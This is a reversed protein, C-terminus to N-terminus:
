NGTARKGVIRRIEAYENQLEPFELSVGAMDTFWATALANLKAADIKSPNAKDSLDFAKAFCAELALSDLDLDRPLQSLEECYRLLMQPQRRREIMYFTFAWATSTGLDMQEHASQTLQEKEQAEALEAFYKQASRFYRDMAVNALVEAPKDLRKAARLQNFTTLNAWNPLGIGRYPAGMPTEFYSALGQSIWEPTHVNRPLIGSSVLLQRVGERSLTATEHEEELSKQVLLLTQAFSIQFLDKGVIPADKNWVAGNIFSERPLQLKKILEQNNIDLFRYTDDIPRWAMLIFNDRRPTLGDGIFPQSGWEAHKLLFEDVSNPVVLLQRYKPLAPQTLQDNLAFWFYFREMTEHLKGIRRKVLADYGTPLNTLGVYFGSDGIVNHYRPDLKALHSSLSQVYPDEGAPAKKFADAVRVYNRGVPNKPDLKVFEDMAVHFEKNLGHHLAWTAAALFKRADKSGTLDKKFIKEYEKNVPDRQIRIYKIIAPTLTPLHVFRGNKGWAHDILHGGYELGKDDKKGEFKIGKSKVEFTAVVFPGESAAKPKGADITSPGPGPGPGGKANGIGGPLSPINQFVQGLDIKVYLYEARASLTFLGMAAMIFVVCRRM